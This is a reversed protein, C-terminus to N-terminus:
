NLKFCFMKKTIMMILHTPRHQWGIPSSRKLADGLKPAFTWETDGGNQIKLLLYLHAGIDMSEM